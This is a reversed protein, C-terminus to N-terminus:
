CYFLEWKDKQSINKLVCETGVQLLETFLSCDLWDNM